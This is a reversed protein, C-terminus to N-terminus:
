GRIKLKTKTKWGEKTVVVSRFKSLLAVDNDSTDEPVIIEDANFKCPTPADYSTGLIGITKVKYDEDSPTQTPQNKTLVARTVKQAAETLTDGKMWERLIDGLVRSITTNNDLCWLKLRKHEEETVLTGIMRM